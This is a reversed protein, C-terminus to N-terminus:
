NNQVFDRPFLSLGGGRHGDTQRAREWGRRASIECPKTIDIAETGTLRRRPVGGRERSLIIARSANEM